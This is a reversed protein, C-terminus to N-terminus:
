LGNEKLWKEAAAMIQLSRTVRQGADTLTFFSHEADSGSHVVLGLAELEAAQHAMLQPCGDLDSM